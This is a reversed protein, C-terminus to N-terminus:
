NGLEANETWQSPMTDRNTVTTTATATIFIRIIRIRTYWGRTGIGIPTPSAPRTTPHTCTSIISTTFTRTRM